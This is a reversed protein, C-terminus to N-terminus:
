LGLEMNIDEITADDDLAGTSKHHDLIDQNTLDEITLVPLDVEDIHEDANLLRLAADINDIVIKNLRSAARLDADVDGLPASKKLQDIAIRQAIMRAQKLAQFGTMRTEEILEARKEAFRELVVKEAAVAATTLEHARSAKVIGLDSFRKSLAQRTVGFEKALEAITAKGLEYLERATQFESDTMRKGGSASVEKEENEDEDHMQKEGLRLCRM